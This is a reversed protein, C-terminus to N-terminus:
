IGEYVAKRREESIVRFSVGDAVCCRVVATGDGTIRLWRAVSFFAQCYRAVSSGFFRM